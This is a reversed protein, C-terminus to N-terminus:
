QKMRLTYWLINAILKVDTIAFVTIFGQYETSLKKVPQAVTLKELIVRSRPTPQNTYISAVSTKM